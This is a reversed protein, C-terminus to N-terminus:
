GSTAETAPAEAEFSARLAVGSYAAPLMRLFTEPHGTATVEGGHPLRIARGLVFQVAWNDRPEGVLQGHDLRITGEKQDQGHEDLAYLDARM